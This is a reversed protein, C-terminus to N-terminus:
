SGIQPSEGKELGENLGQHLFCRETCKCALEIEFRIGYSGKDLESACALGECVDLEEDGDCLGDLWCLAWRYDNGESGFAAQNSARQSKQAGLRHHTVSQAGPGRSFRSDADAIMPEM